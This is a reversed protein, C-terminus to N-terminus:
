FVNWSIIFATLIQPKVPQKKRMGNFLRWIFDTMDKVQIFM